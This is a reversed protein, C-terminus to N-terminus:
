KLCNNDRYYNISDFLGKVKEGSLKIGEIYLTFGTVERDDNEIFTLWADEGKMFFKSESEAYMEIWTENDDSGSMDNLGM